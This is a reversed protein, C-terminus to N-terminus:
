TGRGRECLRVGRELLGWKVREATMQGGGRGGEGDGRGGGEGGGGRGAHVWGMGDGGHLVRLVHSLERSPSRGVQARGAVMGARVVRLIVKASQPCVELM